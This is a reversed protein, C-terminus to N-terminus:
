NNKLSEWEFDCVVTGDMPAICGGLWEGDVVLSFCKGTTQFDERKTFIVQISHMKGDKKADVIAKGEKALNRIEWLEEKSYPCCSEQGFFMSDKNGMDIYGKSKRGWYPELYLINFQPFYKASELGDCGDEGSTKCIITDPPLKRLIEILDDAYM